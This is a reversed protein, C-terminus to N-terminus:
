ARMSGCIRGCQRTCTAWEILNPSSMFTMWIHWCSRQGWCNEASRRWLETNAGLFLLPMLPDGQEGGEGQPVIHTTGTSDEWLYQSPRGHFLRVFPLTASGGDVRMLGEFMAERSTLDFASVGDISVVTTEPDAETLAQVVHSVM